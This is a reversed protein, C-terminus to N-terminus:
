KKSTHMSNKLMMRSHIFQKQTVANVFQDAGELNYIMAAGSAASESANTYKHFNIKIKKLIEHFYPSRSIGGVLVCQDIRIKKSALTQLYNKLFTEFEEGISNKNLIQCFNERTLDEFGNNNLFDSDISSETVESLLEIASISAKIIQNLKLNNRKYKEKLNNNEDIPKYEKLDKKLNKDLIINDIAYDM